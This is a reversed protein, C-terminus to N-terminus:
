FVQCLRLGVQGRLADGDLCLRTGHRGVVTGGMHPDPLEEPDRTRWLYVGSAVAGVGLGVMAQTRRHYRKEDTKWAQVQPSAGGGRILASLDGSQGHAQWAQHLFWSSSALAVYAWQRRSAVPLEADAPAAQLLLATCLVLATAAGPGAPGAPSCCGRPTLASRNLM